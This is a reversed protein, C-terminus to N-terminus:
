RSTKRLEELAKVLAKDDKAEPPVYSQSAAQEVGQGPLHHALTAEGIPKKKAQDPEDQLVEVDPDIGKAQISTGAPTFYNVTTFRVAGHDGSLPFLTQTTGIGFTRSGILTARVNDHLAGALIESGASTGGNILLVVAKNSAIDEDKERASYRKDDAPNRSRTSVIDGRKLLDDAVAVVQEFLGGSSNRVDLIFGNLHDKGAKQTLEFFAQRVLDHTKQNFSTIRIYGVDGGELRSRVVPSQIVERVLEIELPAEHGQRIVQFHVKSGAAGRTKESVDKLSMGHISVGDVSAIVDGVQVGARAAPTDDFVAVVKALGDNMAIQVGVGGFSGTMRDQTERYAKADLYVSHPDLSSVLGRIAVQIIKGDEESTARANLIATASAYFQERDARGNAALKADTQGAVQQEIPFARRMATNAAGYLAAEDRWEIYNAEVKKLAEDFPGFLREVEQRALHRAPARADGGSSPASSPGPTVATVQSSSKAAPSSRPAEPSAPSPSVTQKATATKTLEDRRARAFSGYVTNGFQQIYTDLVAVSTTDRVAIWAQAAQDPSSPSALPAVFYFHGDIPSSSVWPQQAGGTSRKVALGVDNFTQFIDLGPKRLSAALAKTYPSNGQGDLAVNGPQTAFSILTGEPARMQALGGDTARLGRGGFPNNRCADLVVLNLKTGAAEMQRLIVNVDVMQFDVDAERTPNASIPVLYNSGRVQVGHGAYYFLGVDAGQLATGFKQVAADLSGKDLDVQAANGVLVFGVQRLTAAMLEADHRPNELPAVNRYASNGVILAIRKEACAGGSVHSAIVILVSAVLWHLKRRPM